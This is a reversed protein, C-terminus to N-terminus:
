EEKAKRKEETISCAAHAYRRSSTKVYPVTNADFSEGCIACKVIHKAMYKVM